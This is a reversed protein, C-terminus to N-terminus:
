HAIIVNKRLVLLKVGLYVCDVGALSNKVPLSKVYLNLFFSGTSM